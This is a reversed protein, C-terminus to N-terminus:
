RQLNNYPYLSLGGLIESYVDIELAFWVNNLTTKGKVSEDISDNWTMECHMHRNTNGIMTLFM